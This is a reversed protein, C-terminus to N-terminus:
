YKKNLDRLQKQQRNFNQIQRLNRQDRMMRDTKNIQDIQRLNKMQRQLNDLNKQNLLNNVQQLVSILTEKDHQDLSIGNYTVIIGNETETRGIGAINSAIDTHYSLLTQLREAIDEKTMKDLPNEQPLEAVKNTTESQMNSAETAPAVKDEANAFTILPINFVFVVLIIISVIKKM